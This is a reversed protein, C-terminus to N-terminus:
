EGRVRRAIRDAVSIDERRDPGWCVVAIMGPGVHSGIVPGVNSELLIVGPDERELSSCLREFDKECDAHAVVAQHMTQHMDCRKMYFDELQRLGKKRGRAVGVLTLRGSLDFSLLPKVDLKAGAKAVNAPIRGGRQLADLDDIMFQSNVYYRAENAWAVMEEASLGKEMQHIAEYALLGEAISALLSDVLYLKGDPYEEALREAVMTAVDFTGSLGSSFAIFVTPVGSELARRFHEELVPVPIQATSPNGTKKDRMLDYFEKPTMSQFLDDIYNTEEHIFPFGIVDVGEHNVVDFPLDCCSDLILNCRNKM